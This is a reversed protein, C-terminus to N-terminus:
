SRSQLLDVPELARREPQLPGEQMQHSGDIAAAGIVLKIDDTALEILGIIQHQGPRHDLRLSTLLDGKGGHCDQGQPYGAM